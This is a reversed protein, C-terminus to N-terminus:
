LTVNEGCQYLANKVLAEGIAGLGDRDYKYVHQLAELLQVAIMPNEHVTRVFSGPAGFATVMIHNMASDM